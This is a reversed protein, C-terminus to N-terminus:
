TEFGEPLLQQVQNAVGRAFLGGARDIRGSRDPLGRRRLPNILLYVAAEM